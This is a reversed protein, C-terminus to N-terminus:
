YDQAARFGSSNNRNFPKYRSLYAVACAVESNFWSGGRLVRGFDAWDSQSQEPGRPNSVRGQAKCSNYYTPDYWDWCWEWVNGSMDHLGLENPARRYKVPMTQEDTNEEYWAVEEIQDSGAYRFGKSRQGGRAAYEWEAETPLRYGDANEIIKILWNPSINRLCGPDKKDKHIEYAETKGRQRSLWNLYEVAEFWQILVMPHDDMRGWPPTHRKRWDSIGAAACYLGYQRYTLPTEALRFGDLRVPHVPNSDPYDLGGMEFDGGEVEKMLPYYRQEMERLFADGMQRHMIDAFYAYTRGGRGESLARRQAADWQELEGLLSLAKGAQEFNRAEAFFYSLERLPAILKERKVDEGVDVDAAALCKEIADEYEVARRHAEAADSLTDFIFANKDRLEAEMKDIDRRSHEIAKEMKPSLAQMFPRGEDIVQIDYKDFRVKVSKEVDPQKSEVLRRARQAPKDSDHYRKRIIPALADHTLRLDGHEEGRGACSDEVLERSYCLLECSVLDAILRDFDAIHHYRQKLEEKSLSTATAQETTFAYLLDLALGNEEWEPKSLLNLQAGLLEDLTKKWTSKFLAKSIWIRNDTTAKKEVAKQYLKKMQLQLLPAIHSAENALLSDAITEPLGKEISVGDFKSCPERIAKLIEEKSMPKLFWESFKIKEYKLLDAIQAFYESRFGLIFHTKGIGANVGERLVEGFRQTEPIGPRMGRAGPNTYMEEVQDLIFLRPRQLPPYKELLTKLQVDLGADKNRRCYYVDWETDLRPLLGGFLLSSKGVGSQGFLLTVREQRFVVCHYLNSIDTDRGFFLVAEKQSFPKLGLYPMAPLDRLFKGPLSPLIKEKEASPELPSSESRLAIHKSIIQTIESSPIAVALGKGKQIVMGVVADEGNLKVVLPAGSFGNTIAEPSTITLQAFGGEHTSDATGIEAGHYSIGNEEKGGPFGYTSCPKSELGEIKGQYLRLSRLGIQPVDEEPHKLKFLALDKVKDVLLKEVNSVPIVFAGAGDCIFFQPVQAEDVCHAATLIWGGQLFFATGTGNSGVVVKLVSKRIALSESQGTM